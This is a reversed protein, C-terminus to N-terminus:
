SVVETGSRVSDVGIDPSGSWAFAIQFLDRNAIVTEPDTARIAAYESARRSLASFWQNDSEVCQRLVSRFRETDSLPIDWGVGSAELNRWPTQDSILVPCGAAMAECIVHGYNEGFTPFLFLDHAAFVPAIREHVIEGCFQVRINPPLLAMIRQCQKWYDADEAPGYIDFSVDGELGKLMELAGLLNKKRTVRSVFAIQLQGPLKSRREFRQGSVIGPLDSAIAVRTANVKKATNADLGPIVAAVTVHQSMPFERQIDMAEFESSAHWLLDKHLGIWQSIRIFLHKRRNKFQMAGASFEGRPALVLCKPRCLKLWRLFLPVMSFLRNFFSNVYLITNPDVSCLLACLRLYGRLGRPLYLVDANGVRVWRNAVVGPFPSDAGLDHDRTVICFNYESGIAGVLNAISRIPGGAKYGPLYTAVLVLITPQAAVTM